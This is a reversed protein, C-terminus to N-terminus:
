RLMLINYFKGAFRESFMNLMCKKNFNNQVKTNRVAEYNLAFM